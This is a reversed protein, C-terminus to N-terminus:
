AGTGVLFVAQWPKFVSKFSEDILVENNKYVKRTFVATAGAAAFDVQKTVGRPLTPDDQYLPAPAPSVNSVITDGLEVRRGDSTGYIDVQLKSKTRDVTAQVLIHNNTDNKFQLDVSPSWITADMGPKFGNQEYYGVRYAHATRKVIPLGTNLAARFVTTSVQCIGGGDDLVTRGKSIVYAQKFGQAANVPGVLATFSFTDGPKVLAGSILSSGLTLNHVRNPISGAFYSVGSGILEKIGLSNIEDNDIKAREINVPLNVTLSREDQSIVNTTAILLDERLKPKDLSQGDSASTFELIKGAEFRITADVKQRDVALAITDIYQALKIPNLTATVAAPKNDIPSILTDSKFFAFSYENANKNEFAILDILSKGNLSWADFSHKLTIKSASLTIAKELAELLYSELVSPNEIFFNVSVPNEILNEINNRIDSILKQRDAKKGASEKQLIFAGDVFILQANKAPQDYEIFLEDLKRSFIDIDVSYVPKVSHYNILPTKYFIRKFLTGTRGVSSVQEFTSSPDFTIGIESYNLNKVSGEINFSISDSEFRKLRKEIFVKADAHSSYSMLVNAFRVGPYIRQLLVFNYLGVTSLIFILCVFSILKLRSIKLKIFQFLFM